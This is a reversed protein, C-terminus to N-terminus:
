RLVLEVLRAEGVHPRLDDLEARVDDCPFDRDRILVRVHSGPRLGQHLARCEHPPPVYQERRKKARPPSIASSRRSNRSIVFCNGPTVAFSWTEKSRRAPSTCARTPSFPAPLVVRM